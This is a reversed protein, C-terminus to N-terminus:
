PRRPVGGPIPASPDYPTRTLVFTSCSLHGVAGDARRVPLLQEGHHYGSTGML